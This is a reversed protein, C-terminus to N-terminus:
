WPFTSHKGHSVQLKSLSAQATPGAKELLVKAQVRLAAWWQELKQRVTLLLEGAQTWTKEISPGFSDMGQWSCAFNNRYMGIPKAWFITCYVLFSLWLFDSTPRCTAVSECGFAIAWESIALSSAFCVPTSSEDAKNIQM